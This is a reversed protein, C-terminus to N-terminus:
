ANGTSSQSLDAPAGVTQIAKIMKWRQAERAVLFARWQPSSTSKGDEKRRSSCRRTKYRLIPIILHSFLGFDPWLADVVELSPVPQETFQWTLFESLRREGSTRILIDVGPAPWTYMLDSIHSATMENIALEGRYVAKLLHNSAQLIEARATYPFCVNVFFRFVRYSVRSKM